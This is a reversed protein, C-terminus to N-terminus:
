SASNSPVVMVMTRADDAIRQGDGASIPRILAMCQVGNGPAGVTLLPRDEKDFVLTSTVPWWTIKGPGPCNPSDPRPNFSMMNNNLLIGTGPVVVRSGFLSGLTQLQSVMNRETDVVQLHTTHQASAPREIAGPPVAGPPAM